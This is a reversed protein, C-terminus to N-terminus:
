HERKTAPRAMQQLHQTWADGVNDLTTPFLVEVNENQRLADFQKLLHQEMAFAERATAWLHYRFTRYRVGKLHPLSAKNFQRERAKWDFAWGIKVARRNDPSIFDPKKGSAEIEMAYTFAPARRMHMIGTRSTTPPPASKRWSEDAAKRAITRIPQILAVQQKPLALVTSAEHLELPVIGLASDMNFTRSSIATLLPRPDEFRWAAELELGFPWKYKGNEDFDQPGRALKYDLSSVPTTTPQMLGLVRGRETEHTESGLTGIIVVLDGPKLKKRASERWGPQSFQLPGSPSAFGWTKTMYVTM